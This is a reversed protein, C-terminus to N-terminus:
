RAQEKSGVLLVLAATLKLGLNLPLSFGSEAFLVGIAKGTTATTPRGLTPLDVKTLRKAPFPIGNDVILGTYGAIAGVAWGKPAIPLEQHHIGASEDKVIVTLKEGQNAM